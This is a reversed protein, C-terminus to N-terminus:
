IYVCRFACRCVRLSTPSIASKSVYANIKKCTLVQLINVNEILHVFWIKDKNKKNVKGRGQQKGQRQVSVFATPFSTSGSRIQLLAKARIRIGNRETPPPSLSPLTLQIIVMLLEKIFLKTPSTM